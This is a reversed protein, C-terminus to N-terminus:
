ENLISLSTKIDDDLYNTEFIELGKFNESLIAKDNESLVLWCIAIFSGIIGSNSKVSVTRKNQIAEGTAPSITYTRTVEDQMGEKEVTGASTITQNSAAFVHVFEMPNIQNRIGIPWESGNPHFGLALVADEGFSVIADKVGEEELVLKLHDLALGKQIGGFDFEIGERLFRIKQKDMDFEVQHFGCREKTENIEKQDPNIKEEWLSVLPAVTIDFAGNSVQYFDYCITLIDWVEDPVSIWKNPESNSLKAVPSDTYFRNLRTELQEVESKVTNFIEKAAEATVNTLVVDCHSEMALFSDSYILPESM